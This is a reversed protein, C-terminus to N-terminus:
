GNTTEKHLAAHIEDVWQRCRQRLVQEILPLASNAMTDALFQKQQEVSMAAIREKLPHKKAM